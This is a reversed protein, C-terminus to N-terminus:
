SLVSVKQCAALYRPREHRTSLVPLHFRALYQSMSHCQINSFSQNNTNFAINSLQSQLGHSQSSISLALMRRFFKKSCRYLGTQLLLLSNHSSPFFVPLPKQPLTVLTLQLLEGFSELRSGNWSHLKPLHTSNVNHHSLCSAFIDTGTVFGSAAVNTDAFCADFVSAAGFEHFIKSDISLEPVSSDPNHYALIIFNHLFLVDIVLNNVVDTVFTKAMSALTAAYACNELHFQFGESLSIDLVNTVRRYSPYIFVHSINLCPTVNFIQFRHNNTDFAINSIQNESGKRERNLVPDSFEKAEETDEGVIGPLHKDELEILTDNKNLEHLIKILKPYYNDNIFAHSKNSYKVEFPRRLLKKAFLRLFKQKEVNDYSQSTSKHRKRHHLLNRQRQTSLNGAMYDYDTDYNVRPEIADQRNYDAAPLHFLPSPQKTPTDEDNEIAFNPLSSLSLRVCCVMLFTFLKSFM